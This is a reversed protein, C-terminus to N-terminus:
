IHISGFIINWIFKKIHCCSAILSTLIFFPWNFHFNLHFFKPNIIQPQIITHVCSHWMRISHVIHSPNLIQTTPFSLSIFNVGWRFNLAFHEKWSFINYCVMWTVNQFLSLYSIHFTESRFTIFHVMFNFEIMQCICLILNLCKVHKKTAALQFVLSESIQTSYM